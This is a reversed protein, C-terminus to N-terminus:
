YVIARVDDHEVPLALPKPVSIPPVLCQAFWAM